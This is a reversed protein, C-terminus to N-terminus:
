EVKSQNQLEHAIRGNVEYAIAQFSKSKSFNIERKTEMIKTWGYRMLNYANAYKKCFFDFLIVFLYMQCELEQALPINIVRVITGKTSPSIKFQVTAHKEIAIAKTEQSFLSLADSLTYQKNSDFLINIISAMKKLWSDSTRMSSANDFIQAMWVVIYSGYLTFFVFDSFEKFEADIKDLDEEKRVDGNLDYSLVKIKCNQEGESTFDFFYQFVILYGKDAIKKLLNAFM